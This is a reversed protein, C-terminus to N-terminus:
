FEEVEEDPSFDVTKGSTILVAQTDSIKSYVIGKWRFLGNPVDKFKKMNECSEKESNANGM